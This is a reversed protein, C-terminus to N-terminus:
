NTWGAASAAEYEARSADAASRSIRPSRRTSLHPAQDVVVGRRLDDVIAYRPLDVSDPSAARMRDLFRVVSRRHRYQRASPSLDRLLTGRSGPFVRTEISRALTRLTVDDSHSQAPAARIAFRMPDARDTPALVPDRFNRALSVRRRSLGMPNQRRCAAHSAMFAVQTGLTMAMSTM